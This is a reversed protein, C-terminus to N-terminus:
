LGLLSLYWHSLGEGFLLMLAASFSISPGFPFAKGKINKGNLVVAALLGVACAIIVTFLTGIFGPYLGAVAFLKIDGGGLSDRGLMKDMILSLGLLAGGFVLGALLHTAADKLGTWVFPLAILWAAAAIILSGDPIISCEIDVISLFFLCCMFVWNRLCLVTLGFRLVCSVTLVAFFLETLPYRVSIKTKCYRCRGGLFIWSLLPILDAASLEHGCSPCRSHGNVFSEGRATRFAACNLFSGFM